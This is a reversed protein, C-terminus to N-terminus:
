NCRKPATIPLFPFSWCTVTARVKRQLSRLRTQKLYKPQIREEFVKANHVKFGVGDPEWRVIDEFGEIEARQLMLYLRDIFSGANAIEKEAAESIYEVEARGPDKESSSVRLKEDIAQEMGPIRLDSYMQSGHMAHDIKGGDNQATTDVANCDELPQHNGQDPNM